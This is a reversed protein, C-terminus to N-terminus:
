KILHGDRVTALRPVVNRCRPTCNVRDIPGSPFHCVRVSCKLCDYGSIPIAYIFYVSYLISSFSCFSYQTLALLIDVHCLCTHILTLLSSLIVIFQIYLLNCM